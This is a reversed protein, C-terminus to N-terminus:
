SNGGLIRERPRRTLKGTKSSIRQMSITSAGSVIRGSTMNQFFARMVASLDIGKHTYFGADEAALIVKVAEPSIRSLPLDLRWQYRSTKVRRILEGNRDYFSRAPTHGALIVLPDGAYRPLIYWFCLAATLLVLIFLFFSLLLKRWIGKGSRWKNIVPLSFIM